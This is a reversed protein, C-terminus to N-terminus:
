DQGSIEGEDDDDDEEGGSINQKMLSLLYPLNITREEDEDDDDDRPPYFRRAKALFDDAADLYILRDQFTSVPVTTFTHLRRKPTKVAQILTPDDTFTLTDRGFLRGVVDLWTSLPSMLPAELPSSLSLESSSVSLPRDSLWRVQCHSQKTTERATEGPHLPIERAPAGQQQLHVDRLPANPAANSAAAANRIRDYTASASVNLLSDAEAMFCGSEGPDDEMQGAGGRRVERMAEIDVSLRRYGQSGMRTKARSQLLNYLARDDDRESHSPDGPESWLNTEQDRRKKAERDFYELTENSHVRVLTSMYM